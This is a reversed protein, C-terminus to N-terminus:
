RLSKVRVADARHCGASCYLKNGQRIKDCNPNFCKKPERTKLREKLPTDYMGMGGGMMMAIAILSGAKM